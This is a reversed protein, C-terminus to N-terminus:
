PWSIHCPSEFTFAMALIGSSFFRFHVISKM